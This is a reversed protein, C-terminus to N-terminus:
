KLEEIPICETGDPILMISSLCEAMTHSACLIEKPSVSCFEAKGIQNVKTTQPIARSPFWIVIGILFMALDMKKLNLIFKLNDKKLM